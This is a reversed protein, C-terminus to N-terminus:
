LVRSNHRDISKPSMGVSTGKICHPKDFPTAQSLGGAFEMVSGWQSGIAKSSDIKSIQQSSKHITIAVLDDDTLDGEDVESQEEKIATLTVNVRGVTKARNVNRINGKWVHSGGSIVVEDTTALDSGFVGIPSSGNKKLVIVIGDVKKLM